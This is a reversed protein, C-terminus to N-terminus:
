QKLRQQVVQGPHRRRDSRQDSRRTEAQFEQPAQRPCENKQPMPQAPLRRRWGNSITARRSGPSATTQPQYLYIQALIVAGTELRIVAETRRYEHPMADNASCGEYQDLVALTAAPERLLYVEGLVTDAPDESAVAAPYSGM